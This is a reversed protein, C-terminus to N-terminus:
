GKVCKINLMKHDHSLIEVRFGVGGDVPLINVGKRPLQYFGELYSFRGNKSIRHIIMVPKRKFVGYSVFRKVLGDIMVVKPKTQDSVDFNKLMYLATEVETENHITLLEGPLFWGKQFRHVPNLSPYPAFSTMCDFPDRSHLVKVRGKTRKLKNAHGLGFLHGTEHVANTYSAFTISTNGVTHSTKPNVFHVYYDVDFFQPVNIQRHGIRLVENTSLDKFNALVHVTTQLLLIKVLHRSNNEYFRKVSAMIHNGNIIKDKFHYSVTLIKKIM